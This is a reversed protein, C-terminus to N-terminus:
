VPMYISVVRVGMSEQIRIILGGCKRVFRGESEQGENQPGRLSTTSLSQISLTTM